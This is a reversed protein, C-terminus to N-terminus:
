ARVQLVRSGQLLGLNQNSLELRVLRGDRALKSGEIAYRLWVSSFREATAPPTPSLPYRPDDLPPPAPKEAAM